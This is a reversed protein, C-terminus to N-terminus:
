LPGNVGWIEEFPLWQHIQSSKLGGSNGAFAGLAMELVDINQAIPRRKILALKM